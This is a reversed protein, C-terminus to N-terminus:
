REEETWGGRVYEGPTLITAPSADRGALLHADNTLLVADAAAALAAFKRDAPDPVGAFREPDTRGGFREADRFLDAVDDWAIPPIRRLVHETEGRTEEDWVLRAEGRRIRAVVDGASSRPRFAAAVFVNTDLVLAPIGDETM